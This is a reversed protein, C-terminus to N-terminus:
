NLEVDRKRFNTFTNQKNESGETNEVDLNM